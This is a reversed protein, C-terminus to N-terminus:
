SRIEEEQKEKIGYGSFQMVFHSNRAISHRAIEFSQVIWGVYYTYFEESDQSPKFGLLEGAWHAVHTAEHALQSIDPRQLWIHSFKQEDHHYMCGAYGASPHEWKDEDNGEFCEPMLMRALSIGWKHDGVTILHSMGFVPDYLVIACNNAHRFLSDEMTDGPGMDISFAALIHHPAGRALVKGQIDNLTM